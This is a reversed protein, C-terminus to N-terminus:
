ATDITSARPRSTRRAVISCLAAPSRSSSSSSLRAPARSTAMSRGSPGTTSVRSSAPIVTTTILGM